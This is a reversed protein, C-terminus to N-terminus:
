AEPETEAATGTQKAAAASCAGGMAPSRGIVTYTMGNAGRDSRYLCVERVQMSAPPVPIDSLATGEPVLPKRALTIHPYFDKRDFPIGQDALRLRVQKALGDLDACPTVGAWLVNAEPFFGVHSLAISFPTRVAPLIDTVDEPWEGIFALTLHLGSPDRYRGTVGAAQLRKQAEELAAQFAPSPQIAAFLRM